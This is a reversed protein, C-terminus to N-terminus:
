GGIRSSRGKHGKRKHSHRRPKKHRKELTLNDGAALDAGTGNTPALPPSSGAGHCEDAAECPPAPSVFPFGGDTRADYIKLQNGNEDQGVIKDFTAFYADTGNASVGVLGALTEIGVFGGTNNAGTGQSILQPRGDVYEYVDQAQNTDRSVLADTTSFFVRGDDTMFLGNQSGYVDSTPPEGSPLCSVCTLAGTSPTYLYMESHGANNYSTLRDPTIFAAHGGDPAVEMRAIPGESCIYEGQDLTCLVVPNFTTIFQVKGNRYVYLNQQNRLGKAGDLQEPSYFYIDGSGSAFTSDSNENGGLGGQLQHYSGLSIPVVDCQYTWSASCANSNGNGNNGKSVLALPHGEEEGKQSWMYLDVSTDTDEPILQEDSTFYVKSGDSTMGIYAVSHGGSIDYSVSDNVRMYLVGRPSSMLIHSGDASAKVPTGTIPAHSATQSVVELTGAETNNDYIAGGYGGRAFVLNSSFVFHKLDESAIEIGKFETGGSVESVNTPWRDIQTDTTSNWVYPAWSAKDALDGNLFVGSMGVNWDVIKQMSPDALVGVQDKDPSSNGGVISSAAEQGVEWPPGGMWSAQDGPLGIYKTVWGSNTRTAVYLDGQSNIPAGTGPIVGFDGGYALRSPSTAEGTNPGSAPFIETGAAESASAIEYARCDPLFNSSTQQRIAENPCKPPYFNFTQVESTTTGYNTHAVVRFYYTVGVQLNELRAEVSQDTTASPVEDVPTSTGLAVTTGYEFHYEAKVGEPNIKAHLVASAAQLNSSSVGTIAPPQPTIFMRDSGYTTGLSNVAVIRFHYTVGSGLGNIGASVETHGSPDATIVEDTKFGYTSDNGYEFYYHTPIGDGTFSGHLTATETGLETAAETSLELM